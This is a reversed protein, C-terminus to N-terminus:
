RGSGSPGTVTAPSSRNPNEPLPRSAILSSPYLRSMPTSVRAMGTHAPVMRPWRTGSPLGPGTSAVANRRRATTSAIVPNM